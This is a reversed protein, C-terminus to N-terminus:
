LKVKRVARPLDLGFEQVYNTVHRNKDAIRREGEEIQSLLLKENEQMALRKARKVYKRALRFRYMLLYKVATNHLAFAQDGKLGGAEFEKIAAHYCDFIRKRLAALERRGKRGYGIITNLHWRRVWYMNMIRSKMRSGGVLDLQRGLYLIFSTEGLSAFIHGRAYHDAIPEMAVLAERDLRYLENELATREEALKAHEARDEELSFGIWHFVQAALTLNKLQYLLNSLKGALFEAKKALLYARENGRGPTGAIALTEDTIKLLEGLQTLHDLIVLLALGAYLKIELENSGYLKRLLPLAQERKGAAVLAQAAKLEDTEAM